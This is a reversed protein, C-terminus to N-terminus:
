ARTHKRLDERLKVLRVVEEEILDVAEQVPDRRRRDMIAKADDKTVARKARRKTAAM